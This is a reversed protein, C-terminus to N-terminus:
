LGPGYVPVPDTEPRGLVNRLRLLVSYGFGSLAKGNGNKHDANLLDHEELIAVLGDHFDGEGSLHPLGEGSLDQLIDYLQKPKRNRVMGSEIISKIVDDLIEDTDKKVQGRVEPYSSGSLVKLVERRKESISLIYRYMKVLKNYGEDNFSTDSAADKKIRDKTNGIGVIMEGTRFPFRSACFANVGKRFNENAKENSVRAHTILAEQVEEDLNLLDQQDATKVGEFIEFIDQQEGM